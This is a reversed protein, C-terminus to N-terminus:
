ATGIVDFAGATVTHMSGTAVNVDVTTTVTAGNVTASRVAVVTGDNLLLMPQLGSVGVARAQGTTLDMVRMTTLPRWDPGGCGGANNPVTAYVVSSGDLVADGGDNLGSLAYQHVLHAGLLARISDSAGTSSIDFCVMTGDSGVGSVPCTPSAALPTAIGSVPNIYAAYGASMQMDFPTGCGCGGLPQREILIGSSTWSQVYYQWLGPTDPDPHGPLALRQAVLVAPHAPDGRYLRNTVVGTSSQAMTAYAWQSGDPSTVVRGTEGSPLTALTSLVGATTLRQLRGGTVWYAAGAGSGVTWRADGPVMTSALVRGTASVISVAFTASGSSEDAVVVDQPPPPPAPTPTPAPTASPSPAPTAPAPTAVVPAAVDRATPPKTSSAPRAAVAAATGCGALVVGATLTAALHGANM